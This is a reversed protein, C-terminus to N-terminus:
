LSVFWKSEKGARFLKCFYRSFVCNPWFMQSIAKLKSNWFNKKIVLIIKEWLLGSCNKFFFIGNSCSSYVVHFSKQSQSLLLWTQTQVIPHIYMWLVYTGVIEQFQRWIWNEKKKFANLKYQLHLGRFPFLYLFIACFRCLKYM